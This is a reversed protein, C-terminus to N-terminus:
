GQEKKEDDRNGMDNFIKEPYLSQRIGYVCRCDEWMFPMKDKMLSESTKSKYHCIKVWMITCGVITILIFVLMLVTISQITM